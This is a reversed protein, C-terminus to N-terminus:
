RFAMRLILMLLLVGGLIWVWPTEQKAELAARLVERHKEFDRPNSVLQVGVLGEARQQYTFWNTVLRGDAEKTDLAWEVRGTAPNRRPEERFGLITLAGKEVSGRVTRPDPEEAESTLIAFWDLTDPGIVALENGAPTNGTAELFKRMEAGEAKVLGAPGPQWAIKPPWALLLAILLSV